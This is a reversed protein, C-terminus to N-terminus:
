NKVMSRNIHKYDEMMVIAFEVNDIVTSNKGGGVMIQYTELM